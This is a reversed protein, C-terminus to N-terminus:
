RGLFACFILSSILNGENEHTLFLSRKVKCLKGLSCQSIYYFIIDCAEGMKFGLIPNQYLM